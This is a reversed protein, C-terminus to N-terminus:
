SAITDGWTWEGDVECWFNVFISDIRTPAGLQGLPIRAEMVDEWAIADETVSWDEPEGDGDTDVWSSFFGDRKAHTALWYNKGESDVLDMQFEVVGDALLPPDYPEVMLYVYNPGMEAYVAKM